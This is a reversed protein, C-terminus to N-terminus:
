SDIGAFTQGRSKEVESFQSALTDQTQLQLELSSLAENQARCYSTMSHPTLILFNGKEPHKECRTM